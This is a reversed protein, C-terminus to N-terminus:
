RHADTRRERRWVLWSYLLPTLAAVGLAALSVWPAVAAPLFAALMCLLLVAAIRM